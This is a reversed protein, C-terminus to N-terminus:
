GRERARQRAISRRIIDALAATMPAAAGAITITPASAPRKKEVARVRAPGTRKM